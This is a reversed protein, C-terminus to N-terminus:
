LLPKLLVLRSTNDLSTSPEWYAMIKYMVFPKSSSEVGALSSFSCPLEEGKRCSQPFEFSFPFARQPPAPRPSLRSASPRKRLFSTQFPFLSPAENAPSVNIHITSTLFVHKQPDPTPYLDPSVTEKGAENPKQYHFVGELQQPTM